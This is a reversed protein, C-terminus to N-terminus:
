RPWGSRAAAGRRVDAPRRDAVREGPDERHGPGLDRALEVDVVAAGLHVEEAGRQERRGGLAPRHGLVAVPPSYMSSMAALVRPRGAPPAPGAGLVGRLLGEAGLADLEINLELLLCSGRRSRCASRRTTRRAVLRCSAPATSPATASAECLESLPVEVLLVARQPHAGRVEAVVLVPHEDPGVAPQGVEGRSM